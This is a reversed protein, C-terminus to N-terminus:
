RNAHSHMLGALAPDVCPVGSMNSSRLAGYWGWVPYMQVAAIFGRPATPRSLRLRCSAPARRGIEIIGTLARAIGFVSPVPHFLCSVAVLYGLCAGMTLQAKIGAAETVELFSEGCVALGQCHSSQYCSRKLNYVHCETVNIECVKLEAMATPSTGQLLGRATVSSVVYSAAPSSICSYVVSQM